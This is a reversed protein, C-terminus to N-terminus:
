NLFYLIKKNEEFDPENINFDGALTVSKNKISDNPLINQFFNKFVELDGDPRCYITNKTDNNELKISRSEIAECNIYSYNRKTDRLSEFLFIAVKGGRDYERNKHLM